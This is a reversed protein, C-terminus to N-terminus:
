TPESLVINWTVDVSDGANLNFANDLRVVHILAAQATSTEHNRLTLSRIGTVTSGADVTSNTFTQTMVLTRSGSNWTEDNARQRKLGNNPSTPSSIDTIAYNTNTQWDTGANSANVLGMWYATETNNSDSDYLKEAIWAFGAATVINPQMPIEEVSGDVRRITCGAYGKITFPVNAERKLRSHAEASDSVGGEQMAGKKIM